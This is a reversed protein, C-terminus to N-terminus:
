RVSPPDIGTEPLRGGRGVTLTLALGLGLSPHTVLKDSDPISGPLNLM